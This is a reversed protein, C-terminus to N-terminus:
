VSIVASIEPASLPSSYYHGQGECCGMKELVRGEFPQEVGVAAVAMGAARALALTGSVIAQPVPDEVLRSVLSRDLKILNIPLSILETLAAEGTGFHDIALRVGANKLEPLVRRLTEGDRSLVPEPFELQLLSSELGAEYLADLVSLLFGGDTIQRASINICVRLPEHGEDLLGQAMQCAQKLLKEGVPIILGSEELLPLFTEPSLYGREPHRWRLLGEFACIRNEALGIIPQYNIEFQNNRYAKYIDKSLEFREMAAQGRVMPSIRSDGVGAAVAQELAAETDLWVQNLSIGDVPFLSAGLNPRLWRIRRGAKIPGMLTTNLKEIVMPVAAPESVDDLLIAFRSGGLDCLSDSSRLCSGIRCVLLEVQKISDAFQLLILLAHKRNRVARRASTELRDIFQPYRCLRGDRGCRGAPHEAPRRQPFLAAIEPWFDTEKIDM